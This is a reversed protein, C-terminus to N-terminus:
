THFAYIYAEYIQSPIVNICTSSSDIAKYVHPQANDLVISVFSCRSFKRHNKEVFIETQKAATAIAEAVSERSNNSVCCITIM